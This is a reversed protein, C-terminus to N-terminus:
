ELMADIVKKINLNEEKSNEIDNNQVIYKEKFFEFNTDVIIKDLSNIFSIADLNLLEEIKLMDEELLISNNKDDISRKNVTREENISKKDYNDNDLFNMNSLAKYLDEVNSSFYPLENKLNAYYFASLKQM